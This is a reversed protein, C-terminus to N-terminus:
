NVKKHTFFSHRKKKYSGKKREFSKIFSTKQKTSNVRFINNGLINKNDATKNWPSKIVRKILNRFGTPTGEM